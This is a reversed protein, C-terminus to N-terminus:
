LLKPAQFFSHLYSPDGAPERLRCAYCRHHVALEAFYFLLPFFDGLLHLFRELKVTVKRVLDAVKTALSYEYQLCSTKPVLQQKLHPSLAKFITNCGYDTALRKRESHM